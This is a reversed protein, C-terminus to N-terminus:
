VENRSASASVSNDEVMDVVVVDVVSMGREVISRSPGRVGERDCGSSELKSGVSGSVM